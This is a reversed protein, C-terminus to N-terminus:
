GLYEMHDLRRTTSPEILRVPLGHTSTVRRRPSVSPTTRRSSYASSSPMPRARRTSIYIGSSSATPCRAIPTPPTTTSRRRLSRGALLGATAVLAAEGSSARVRRAGYRDREVGIRSSGCAGRRTRHPASTRLTLAYRSPKAVRRRLGAYAGAPRHDAESPAPPYPAPLVGRGRLGGRFAAGVAGRISRDGGARGRTRQCSFLWSESPTWYVANFGHLVFGNRQSASELRAYCARSAPTAFCGPSCIARPM